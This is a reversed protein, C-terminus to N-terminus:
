CRSSKGLRVRPGACGSFVNDEVPIVQQVDNAKKLDDLGEPFVFQTGKETIVQLVRQNKDLMKLALPPPITGYKSAISQYSAKRSPADAPEDAGADGLDADRAMVITECAMAVLVAHGRVTKPIFAVTKARKMEPSTTLFEAIRNASIFIAAWATM